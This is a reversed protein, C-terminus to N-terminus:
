LRSPKGDIVRVADDATALQRLCSGVSALIAVPDRNTRGFRLESRAREVYEVLRWLESSFTAQVMRKSYLVLANEHM